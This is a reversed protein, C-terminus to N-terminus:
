TQKNATSNILNKFKNENVYKQKQKEEEREQILSIVPLQKNNTKLYASIISNEDDLQNMFNNIKIREIEKGKTQKNLNAPKIDKDMRIVIHSDGDDGERKQFVEHTKNKFSNFNNQTKVADIEEFDTVRNRFDERNELSISIVPKGFDALKDTEINVYNNLPKKLTKVNLQSGESILSSRDKTPKAMEKAHILPVSYSNSRIYGKIGSGNRQPRLMQYYFIINNRYM